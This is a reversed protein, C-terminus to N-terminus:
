IIFDSSYTICAHHMVIPLLYKPSPGIFGFFLPGNMVSMFLDAPMYTCMPMRVMASANTYRARLERMKSSSEWELLM